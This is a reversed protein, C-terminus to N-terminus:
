IVLLGQQIMWPKQNPFVKIMLKWQECLFQHLGIELIPGFNEFKERINVVYM